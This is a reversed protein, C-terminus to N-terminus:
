AEVSPVPVLGEGPERASGEGRVLQVAIGTFAAVYLLGAAPSAWESLNTLVFETVIFSWLAVPIWRPVVQSRFLAIGLLVLGIVTGLLGAAMFIVGTRVGGQDRRRRARGQQRRRQVDRPLGPRHRRLGRARLWRHRGPRRRHVSLRPAGPRALLAIAVVAVMFPLQALVFTLLSIAGSAGAADIAALREAPDASFEPQSLMSIVSLLATAVLCTAAFLRAPTTTM